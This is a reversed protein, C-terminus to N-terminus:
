FTINIVGKKWLHCFCNGKVVKIRVVVRQLLNFYSLAVLGCNSRLSPCQVPIQVRDINLMRVVDQLKEQLFSLKLQNVLQASEQFLLTQDSVSM